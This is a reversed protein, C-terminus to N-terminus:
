RHGCNCGCTHGGGAHAHEHAEDHGHVHSHRHAQGREKCQADTEVLLSGDRLGQVARLPDTEQTVIPQIGLQVLKMFLGQGMGGSILVEVGDLPHPERGQLEHFTQERTLEIPKLLTIEHEQVDFLMFRRCLGAHGTVQRLNQSTIAVKM